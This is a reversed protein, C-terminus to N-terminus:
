IHYDYVVPTVLDCFHVQIKAHNSRRRNQVYNATYDVTSYITQLITEQETNLKCYLRRNQIYNATYDGTRYITQLIIKQETYLKCYLRKNQIYNVTYDGTRYETQLITPVM